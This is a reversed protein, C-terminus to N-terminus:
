EIQIKRVTRDATDENSADPKQQAKEIAAFAKDVIRILYQKEDEDLADFVIGVYSTIDTKLSDVMQRGRDTLQIAVIRRDSESRGRQLSGKKVLRDVIGTATSMPFSMRDAIQSMTAEGLKDVVMLTFLEQKSMETDLTLWEEPFAIRRLNDFILEYYDEYQVM